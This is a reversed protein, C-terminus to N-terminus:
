SSLGPKSAGKVLIKSTIFDAKSEQVLSVFSLARLLSSPIIKLREECNAPNGNAHVKLVSEASNSITPKENKTCHLESKILGSNYRCGVYILM